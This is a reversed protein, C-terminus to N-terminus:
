MCCMLTFGASFSGMVLCQVSAMHLCIGVTGSAMSIEHLLFPSMCQAIHPSM